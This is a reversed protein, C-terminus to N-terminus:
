LRYGGTRIHHRYQEGPSATRLYEIERTANYRTDIITYLGKIGGTLLVTINNLFDVTFGAYILFSM